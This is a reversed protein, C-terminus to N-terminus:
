KQNNHFERLKKTVDKQYLWSSEFFIEGNKRICVSSSGKESNKFKEDSALCIECDGYRCQFQIAEGNYHDLFRINIAKIEELINNDSLNITHLVNNVIIAWSEKISDEKTTRPNNEIVPLIEPFKERVIELTTKENEDLNFKYQDEKAGGVIWNTLPGYGFINRGIRYILIEELAYAAEECLNEALFKIEAQEGLQSQIEKIRNIKDRNGKEETYEENLHQFARKGKGKGIYFIEKDRPDSLSYVYFIKESNIM